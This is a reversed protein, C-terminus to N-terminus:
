NARKSAARARAERAQANHIERGFRNLGRVAQAMARGLAAFAEMTQAHQTENM